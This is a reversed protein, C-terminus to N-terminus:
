LDVLLRNVLVQFTKTVQKAFPPLYGEAYLKNVLFTITIRYRCLALFLLFANRLNLLKLSGGIRTEPASEVLKM